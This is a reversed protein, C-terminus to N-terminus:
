KSSKGIKKSDLELRSMQQNLRDMGQISASLIQNGEQALHMTRGSLESAQEASKAVSSIALSFDKFLENMKQASKAQNTGGTAIDEVGASIETATASVTTAASLIKEVTLKFAKLMGNFSRNLQGIEDNSRYEGTVTLDGAEASHMLEQLSQVPRTIARTIALGIVVFIVMSVTVSGLSILAASAASSLNDKNITEARKASYDTMERMVSQADDMLVSVKTSYLEYAETDKNQVSLSLANDMESIFVEYKEKFKNLLEAQKPDLNAKDLKAVQEKNKVLRDKYDALLKKQLQEDRALMTELAFSTAARNNTRIEVMAANPIFIDTYVLESNHAMQQTFKYGIIGVTIVMILAIAILTFIKYVLRLDRLLSMMNEGAGVKM